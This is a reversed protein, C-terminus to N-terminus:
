LDLVEIRLHEADIHKGLNAYSSALDHMSWLTDPHEDGLIRKQLNLVEIRLHEADIHKGLDVYSWALNNMSLLTDPHENGLIRKQLDLVEIRLQEAHRHKGLNKFSNALDNMSQLTDPHENGLVRKQLNFVEIRLQEADRHKGLNVYSSALNNMNRLTDPLIADYVQKKTNLYKNKMSLLSDNFTPQLGVLKEMYKQIIKLRYEEGMKYKYNKKLIDALINFIDNYYMSKIINDDHLMNQMTHSLIHNEYINNVMVNKSSVSSVIIARANLVWLQKENVSLRDQCYTQILPHLNYLSKTTNKIILSFSILLEISETFIWENWNRLEDMNLISVDMSPLYSPIGEYSYLKKNEKFYNAAREFISKSINEYHFFACINILIIAYKAVAKSDEIENSISMEFIKKFSIEWTKYVTRNYGSVGKFKEHNLIKPRYRDYINIFDSFDIHAETIYAGAMDIALPLYHLKKVIIKAEEMHENYDWNIGSTNLLLDVATEESMEIVEMSSKNTTIRRLAPNRSTILINGKNGSPLFKEVLEPSGDANDFLILWESELSSIWNLVESASFSSAIIGLSTM